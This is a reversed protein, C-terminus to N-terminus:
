FNYTKTSMPNRMQLSEYVRKVALYTLLGVPGFFMCGLIAPVIALHPIGSRGSDLVFFRATWLDFVIFHAWGALVSTADSFAKSLGQITSLSSYDMSLISESFLAYALAVYLVSYAVAVAATIKRTMHWRPLVLLSFWAPLSGLNVAHLIQNHTYPLFSIPYAAAVAGKAKAAALSAGPTKPPLLSSRDTLARTRTRGPM